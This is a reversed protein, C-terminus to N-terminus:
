LASEVKNIVAEAGLAVATAVKQADTKIDTIVVEVIGEVTKLSALAETRLSSYATEADSLAKAAAAYAARANAVATEADTVMQGLEALPRPAPAATATTTTTSAAAVQQRILLYWGAVLIVGLVGAGIAVTYLLATDM